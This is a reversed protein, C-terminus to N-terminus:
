KLSSFAAISAGMKLKDNTKCNELWHVSNKPLILIVTSGFEFYAIEEGKNYTIAQKEMNILRTANTSLPAWPNRTIKGAWKTVIGNVLMAGIMVLLLPGCVTEIKCVLRENRAFVKPITSTTKPNVSFLKGPIYRTATIQGTYPMHIRHYDSPSLYINIFEGDIFDKALDEGVLEQLQYTHGKAQIMEQRHIQGVQGIVGDVPSTLINEAQNIPRLEPKLKRTFFENFTLYDDVNEKEAEKLSVAYTRMFKKIQWNKLWPWPRTVFLGICWSSLHHPLLYQMLVNKKIMPDINEHLLRCLM